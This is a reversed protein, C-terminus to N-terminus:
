RKRRPREYKKKLNRLRTGMRKQVHDIYEKKVVTFNAYPEADLIDKFTKSEGDGIYNIYKVQHLTESRKFMEVVADVEMKGASGEHNVQCQNTHTKRGMEAYEETHAKKEWYECVKCYKSKVLIDIVKGTFWGILTVLGYLSSFGRKRWTGDGSVTIGNLQKNEICKAKEEQAATEMSQQCVTETAVSITQILKDYFSHFIPRPLDMFACFKEVGNLGIGLLRMALIIRRNIEYAKDVFPCNPIETQDCNECSIVIKFGLGRKGSETFKM